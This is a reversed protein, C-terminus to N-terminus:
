EPTKGGIAKLLKGMEKVEQIIEIATEEGLVKSLRKFLEETSHKSQYRLSTGKLVRELSEITSSGGELYIKKEGIVLFWKMGEKEFGINVPIEGELDTIYGQIGTEILTKEKISRLNKRATKVTGDEEKFVIPTGKIFYNFLTQTLDDGAIRKGELYSAQSDRRGEAKIGKFFVVVPTSSDISFKINTNNWFTLRKFIDFFFSNEKISKQEYPTWHYRHLYVYPTWDEKTTPVTKPIEINYTHDDLAKIELKKKTSTETIKIREQLAKRKLEHEESELREIEKATAKCEDVKAQVLEITILGHNQIGQVGNMETYPHFQERLKLVTQYNTQWQLAEDRTKADTVTAIGEGHRWYAESIVVWLGEMIDNFISSVENWPSSIEKLSAAVTSQPIVCFKGNSFCAIKLTGRANTIIKKVEVLYAKEESYTTTGTTPLQLTNKEDKLFKQIEQLDEQFGYLKLSLKLKSLEETNQPDSIIAYNGM